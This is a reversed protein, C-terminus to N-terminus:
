PSKLPNSAYLPANKWPYPFIASFFLVIEWNMQAIQKRRKRASCSKACEIISNGSEGAGDAQAKEM